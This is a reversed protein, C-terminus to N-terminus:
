SSSETSVLTHLLSTMKQSAKYAIKHKEEDFDIRSVM